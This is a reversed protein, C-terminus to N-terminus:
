RFCSRKDRPLFRFFTKGLFYVSVHHMAWRFFFVPFRICLASAQGRRLNIRSSYEVMFLRWFRTGNPGWPRHKLLLWRLHETFFPTRLFKKSFECSLVQALAEKKIFNACTNEQSNQSIELFVKKVSCTQAVAKPTQPCTQAGVLSVM